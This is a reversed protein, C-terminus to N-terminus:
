YFWWVHRYIRRRSTKLYLNPTEM